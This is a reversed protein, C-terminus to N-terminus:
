SSSGASYTPWAEKEQVFREHPFVHARDIGRALAVARGPAKRTCWPLMGTKAGRRLRTGPSSAAGFSRTSRRVRTPRAISATSRGATTSPPPRGRGEHRRRSRDHRRAGRGSRSRRPSCGSIEMRVEIRRAAGGGEPQAGRLPHLGGHVQDPRARVARPRCCSTGMLSSTSMKTNVSAIMALKPWLHKKAIQPAPWRRLPNM